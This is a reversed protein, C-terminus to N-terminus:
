KSDELALQSSVIEAYVTSAAILADHTGIDAIRGKDLVIIRDADRITSIRQAVIIRTVGHLDTDLANRVAADTATDLASFSDDFILIAADSLLARAIALRQRQGGSVTMGGQGILTNLGDPMNTVFDAAGATRLARWIEEETASASGYRMNEAITGTFLFAKQPVYGVLDSLEDRTLDRIDTEGITVTGSDPDYLRPMLKVLTSKGSGTSGVIATTKGEPAIFDINSVVDDEAGPYRFSVGDFAVTSGTRSANECDANTPYTIAPTTRLVEAIREGAVRARPWQMFVSMGMMIAQVILALYAIFSIMQGVQLDGGTVLGSGIWVIGATALNVVLGLTAGFLAQIRGMRLGVGSLETNATRFREREHKDRAFARIVRIGSIHERVIGNVADIREQNLRSVTRMARQIFFVTGALVPIAILFVVSLPLNASIAFSLGAVAMLPATVGVTVIAFALNQIQTIDSTTRTILSAATFRNYEHASLGISHTYLDRRIDRAVSAAIGIGIYLTAISSAVILFAALAMYRGTDLIHATDGTLVGNDIIDANLTPLWFSAAADVAALLIVAIVRPRYPQLYAVFLRILGPPRTKAPTSNSTM